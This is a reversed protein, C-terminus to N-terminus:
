RSLDSAWGRPVAVGAELDAQSSDCGRFRSAQAGESVLGLGLAEWYLAQCGDRGQTGGIRGCGRYGAVLSWM